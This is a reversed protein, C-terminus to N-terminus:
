FSFRAIKYHSGELRGGAHALKLSTLDHQKKRVL